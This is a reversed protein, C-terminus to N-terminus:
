IKPKQPTDELECKNKGAKGQEGLIREKCLPTQKHDVTHM